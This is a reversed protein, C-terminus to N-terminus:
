VMTGASGAGVILTRKRSGRHKTYYDRFIRWCLRSGGIMILHLMWTVALLRYTITDFLMQQILIASVISFLTVQTIILLEGVSAYEWAKQYLKTVASLLHHGLLLALSTAFYLSSPGQGQLGASLLFSAIYVASIVIVSDTFILFSLRQR